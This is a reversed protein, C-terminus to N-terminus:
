ANEEAASRLFERFGNDDSQNDIYDMLLSLQTSENWGQDAEFEDMVAYASM